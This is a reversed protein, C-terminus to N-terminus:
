MPVSKVHCLYIKMFGTLPFFRTQSSLSCCSSFSFFYFFYFVVTLGLFSHTLYLRVRIQFTCNSSIGKKEEGGHLQILILGKELSPNWNQLHQLCLIRLHFSLLNWAPLPRVMKSICVIIVTDKNPATWQEAVWAGRVKWLINSKLHCSSM